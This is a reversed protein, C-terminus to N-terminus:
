TISKVFAIFGGTSISIKNKPICNKINPNIKPFARAKIISGIPCIAPIPAAIVPKTAVTNETGILIKIPLKILVVAKGINIPNEIQPPKDNAM